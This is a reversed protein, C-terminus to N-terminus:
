NESSPVNINVGCTPQDCEDYHVLTKNGDAFMLSTNTKQILLVQESCGTLLIISGIFIFMLIYIYKM